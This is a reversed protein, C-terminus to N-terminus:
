KGLVIDADIKLADDVKVFFLSPREIKFGELSLELRGIAHIREPTQYDVHVPVDLSRQVGHLSVQGKCTRNVTAPLSAPPSMGECVAKFEVTPYRAADITEKAHADRNSNGSDFSEAPIRLMIQAEGSPLIRAKGEVKKSVGSVRHLKHVVHYTVTSEGPLISYDLGGAPGSDALIVGPSVAGLVLALPMASSAWRRLFPGHPPCARKM